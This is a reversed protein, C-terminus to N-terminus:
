IINIARFRSERENFLLLFNLNVRNEVIWYSVDRVTTYNTKQTRPPWHAAAMKIMIDCMFYIM